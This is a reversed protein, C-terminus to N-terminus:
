NIAKSRNSKRILYVGLFLGLLVLIFLNSDIPLEPPPTGGTPPRPAPPGSGNGSAM